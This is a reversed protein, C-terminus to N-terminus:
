LIKYKSAAISEPNVILKDNPNLGELVETTEGHTKGTVINRLIPKGNALVWISDHNLVTWTPVLKVNNQLNSQILATGSQGMVVFQNINKSEIDVLYVKQGTPLTIKDPYIRSVIGSISQNRSGLRVTASNGVSVFDINNESINARFVLSSPDAITFSTASTVNIFPTTADMHTIVGNIPTTISALQLAYNAIDINVQASNQAILANDVIRRVNDYIVDVEPIVSYGQKNTTDLSTRQQGELVGAKQSELVQDASNKSLAYNNAALQMQKQLVFTDLSAITQGQFVSDGEKFPLYVLKGGTQFHLTAQNQPTVAGDAQIISSVSKIELAETKVQSNARFIIFIGAVIILSALIIRGFSFMNEKKFLKNKM